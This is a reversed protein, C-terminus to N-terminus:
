GKPWSREAGNSRDAEARRFRRLVIFAELVELLAALLLIWPLNERLFTWLVQAFTAEEPQDPRLPETLVLAWLLLLIVLLVLGAGLFMLYGRRTLSILGYVKIRVPPPM